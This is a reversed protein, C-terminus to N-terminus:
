YWGTPLNFLPSKGNEMAVCLATECGQQRHPVDQFVLALLERYKLSETWCDPPGPTLVVDGPNM